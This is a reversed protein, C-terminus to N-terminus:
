LLDSDSFGHRQDPYFVSVVTLICIKIYLPGLGNSDFYYEDDSANDMQCIFYEFNYKSKFESIWNSLYDVNEKNTGVGVDNLDFYLLLELENSNRGINVFVNKITKGNIEFKDTIIVLDVYDNLQFIDTIKDVNNSLLIEPYNFCVEKSNALLKSLFDLNISSFIGKCTIEILTSTIMSLNANYANEFESISTPTLVFEPLVHLDENGAEPVGDPCPPDVQLILL